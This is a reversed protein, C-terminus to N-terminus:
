LDADPDTPYFQSDDLPKGDAVAQKLAALWKDFDCPNPPGNCFGFMKYHKGMTGEEDCEIGNDENDDTM